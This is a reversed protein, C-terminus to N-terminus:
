DEEISMDEVAVGAIMAETEVEVRVQAPVHALHIRRIQTNAPRVRDVGTDTIGPARTVYRVVVMEVVPGANRVALGSIPDWRRSIANERLNEHPM